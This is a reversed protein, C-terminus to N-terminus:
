RWTLPGSARGPALWWHPEIGDSSRVISVMKLTLGMARVSRSASGWCSAKRGVTGAFSSTVGYVATLGDTGNARLPGSVGPWAAEDAMSQDVQSRMSSALTLAM